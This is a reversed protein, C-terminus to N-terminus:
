KDNIEGRLKKVDEVTPIYRESPFVVVTSLLITLQMMADFITSKVPPLANVALNLDKQYVVLREDPLEYRKLLYRLILDPPMAKTKM